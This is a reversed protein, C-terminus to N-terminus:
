TNAGPRGNADIVRQRLSDAGSDNTNHVVFDAFEVSGIDPVANFARDFGTGRQDNTLGAPNSGANILPSGLAPLHTLTPGGNNALAGLKLNAHPQFPLNGGADTKAFGLNSGVASTKLTTTNPNAIDPAGSNFNGSVITSEIALNGTGTAVSVGGGGGS